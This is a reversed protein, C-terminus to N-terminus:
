KTEEAIEKAVADLVGNIFRPSEAAAFERALNLAETIIVKFSLKLGLMEHVALRLINRDVLALRELHWNRANRTLLADCQQRNDWVERLLRRADQRAEAPEDCDDIFRHVLELADAGQVDLSCLGQLALRRARHPDTM